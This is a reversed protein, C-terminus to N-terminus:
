EGDSDEKFAADIMADTRVRARAGSVSRRVALLLDRIPAPAADVWVLAALEELRKTRAPEEAPVRFEREFDELTEVFPFDFQGVKLWDSNVLSDDLVIPKMADSTM